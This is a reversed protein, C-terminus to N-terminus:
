RKEVASSSVARSRRWSALFLGGVLLFPGGSILMALLINHGAAFCAFTSHAVGIIVLIAGGLGERWWAVLVGIISAIVLVSMIASESTWAAPEFAVHAVGSLLWLGAVLAGIGRATRRMWKAARDSRDSVEPMRM